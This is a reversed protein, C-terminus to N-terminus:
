AWHAANDGLEIVQSVLHNRAGTNKKRQEAKSGPTIKRKGPPHFILVDDGTTVKYPPTYNIPYFFTHM